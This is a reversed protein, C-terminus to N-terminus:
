EPAGVTIPNQLFAISYVGIREFGIAEYARCAPPGSAFLIAETVGEARAEQLHAAVARRAYGQNRLAPPTYVGGVQVMDPIRANFGTKAVPRGEMMLIRTDGKAIIQPVNAKIRARTQDNDPAGLANIDYDIMWEELMAADGQVVPRIHGGGPDCLHDLGLRYLPEVEHVRVAESGLDLARMMSEVQDPVGTMGIIKRGKLQQSFAWWLDAGAGPAQALLFGAQSCGFVAEIPNGSLWYTTARPDDGGSLGYDALNARLFMSTEAHAALFADIGAEDGPIARRIM